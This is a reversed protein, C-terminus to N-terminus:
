FSKCKEAFFRRNTDDSKFSRTNKKEIINVRSHKKHAERIVAIASLGKGDTLRLNEGPKMRLVQVIHRSSNENLIFEEEM